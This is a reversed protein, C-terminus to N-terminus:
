TYTYIYIYIMLIYLLKSGALIFLRLQWKGSNLIEKEFMLQTPSGIKGPWDFGASHGSSSGRQACTTLEQHDAGVFMVFEGVTIATTKHPVKKPARSEHLHL